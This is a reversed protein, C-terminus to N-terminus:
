YFADENNLGVKIFEEDVQRKCAILSREKRRRGEDEFETMSKIVFGGEMILVHSCYRVSNEMALQDVSENVGLMLLLDEARKGNKIQVCCMATMKKPM